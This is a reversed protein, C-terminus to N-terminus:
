KEELDINKSKDDPKSDTVKAFTQGSGANINSNRLEDARPDSSPRLGLVQRIENSSMIENRTLKDATEALTNVPALKLPDRFFMISKGQTRATKSIWKRRIEEVVTSVIPEISRTYYNQMTADSASGNMIEQTIGLQSYYQETLYQIQSMLNNEVARNLQIIRETGDVYGIGYKSNALQDELETRRKNAEARRAETKIIYPLQIIMNLKGSTTNEDSIDLLSLKQRLRQAVSNPENMVAYLPNEIICVMTKLLTIEEQNGTQENYLRVKVHRPYWEVIKAVRMSSVDFVQSCELNTIADVPVIAICGEDFLSSYLDLKFVRASQDLNSSLTLCKNLGSDMTELYRGNQDLRVHEIDISACDLAIKNTVATVISKEINGRLRIKDQRYSSSPGVGYDPSDRNMFANWANRIRTGINDSM